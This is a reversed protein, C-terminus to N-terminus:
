QSMKGYWNTSSNEISVSGILYGCTRVLKKDFFISKIVFCLYKRFLADGVGEPCDWGLVPLRVVLSLKNEDTKKCAVVLFVVLLMISIKKM